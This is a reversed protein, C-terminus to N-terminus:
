PLRSAIEDLKRQIATVAIDQQRFEYAIYFVICGFGIFLKDGVDSGQWAGLLFLASIGILVWKLWRWIRSEM